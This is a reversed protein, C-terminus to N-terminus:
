SFRHWRGKSNCLAIHFRDPCIVVYGREVLEKGYAMEPDGAVGAPESKGLEYPRHSGDQHIALIAPCLQSLDDPVLLFAQVRENPETSYEILIRKYTDCDVESLIDVNLACPEPNWGLLQLLKEKNLTFGWWDSTKTLLPTNIVM